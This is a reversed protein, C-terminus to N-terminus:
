MLRAELEDQERDSLTGGMELDPEEESESLDSLEVEFEYNEDQSVQQLVAFRNNNDTPRWMFAILCFDVGYVIYAWGDLLFFRGRWHKTVYDTSSESMYLLLNLFVMASIAVLTALLIRWINIYMLSKALQHQIQPDQITKSVASVIRLLFLFTTTIFPLMAVLLWGSANNHSARTTCITYLMCSYFHALVLIPSVTRGRIDEPAPRTIGYGLCAFLLLYLSATSRLSTVIAYFMLFFITKTSQAGVRNVLDYYGWTIIMELVLSGLFVTVCKQLPLLDQQAQFRAVLWSLLVLAYAITLGTFFPLKAADSAQLEGFPNQFLVAGTYPEGKEAYTTVCYYGAKKVPYHLSRPKSLVVKETRIPAFRPKYEPSETDTNVIFTGVDEEACVGM